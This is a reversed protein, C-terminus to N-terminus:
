YAAYGDSLLTGAFDGLQQVVHDKGRSRSWTFCIEDAEGYVPWYWTAKLKGKGAKGAKIPTEDMALVRSRLIHRWQADYIPALLGIARQVYNTLTARSLTIGADALRQHQRYLPLHYLFKDVLLGALLSVDALSNDFVASPAPVEMLCAGRKDRIVPRRYELVVYSGPRQALRRTVKYDIIEYQDADPGQLQAASLEITEIPVREDFRLGSDTVDEDRRQKGKRRTYTIQETPPPASPPLADGLLAGLDMQDPHEILRKESKRGFLQRKLWDLQQRLADREQRLQQNHTQLTAMGARLAAIAERDNSSVDSDSIPQAM